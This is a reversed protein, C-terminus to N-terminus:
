NIFGKQFLREVGKKLFGKVLFFDLSHCGMIVCYENFSIKIRFERLM